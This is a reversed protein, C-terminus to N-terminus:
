GFKLNSHSLVKPTLLYMEALSVTHLVTSNWCVKKLCFSAGSTTGIDSTVFESLRDSKPIQM